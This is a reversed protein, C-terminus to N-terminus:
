RLVPADFWRGIELCSKADRNAKGNNYWSDETLREELTEPKCTAHWCRFEDKLGRLLMMRGDYNWYTVDQEIFLWKLIKLVMEISLGEKFNLIPGSLASDPQECNWVREIAALLSERLEFNEKLKVRIDAHIMAHSPRKDKEGDFREVWVQFDIGKNLFTPRLLFIRSGGTLSEVFYRYRTVVQIQGNWYGKKENLFNNVVAKRLEDRSNMDLNLNIDFNEYAKKHSM